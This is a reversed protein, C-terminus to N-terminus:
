NPAVPVVLVVATGTGTQSELTLTGGISEARERMVQLGIYQRDRALVGGPEFGQGGDQVRVRVYGNDREICVSALHTRAHKRVNTLAEQIIRIVQVQASGAM